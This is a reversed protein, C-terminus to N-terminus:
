KDGGVEDAKCIRYSTSKKPKGGLAVVEEETVGVKDYFGKPISLEAWPNFGKDVALLFLQKKSDADPLTFCVSVCEKFAKDDVKVAGNDKVWAKLADKYDSAAKELRMLQRLMEEAEAETAPAKIGTEAVLPEKKKSSKPKENKNETPPESTPSQGEEVPSVPPFDMVAELQEFQEVKGPTDEGRISVLEIEAPQTTTEVPASDTNEPEEPSIATEGPEEPSKDENSESYLYQALEEAKAVCQAAYGCYRCRTGPSAPFLDDPNEGVALALTCGEIEQAIDLAWKRAEEMDKKDYLAMKERQESRKRLFILKGIVEEVGSIESEAWAYLALQNTHEPEYSIRNTKWDWIQTVPGPIKIYDRYGQIEPSFEDEPDLRLQFHSEVHEPNVKGILKIVEDRNVLIKVETFELPLKSKQISVSCAEDVSKCKGTLLLEIAEHVAKGLELPQTIPEQINQIYKLYWAYRCESFLTIRSFSYVMTM